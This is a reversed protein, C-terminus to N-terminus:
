QYCPHDSPTKIVPEMLVKDAEDIESGKLTMHQNTSLHDWGKM